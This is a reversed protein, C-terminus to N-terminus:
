REKKNFKYNRKLGDKRDMGIDEWNVSKRSVVRKGQRVLIGAFV